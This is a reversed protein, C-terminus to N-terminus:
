KNDKIQFKQLVFSKLHLPNVIYTGTYIEQCLADSLPTRVHKQKKPLNQKLLKFCHLNIIEGKKLDSTQNPEAPKEAGPKVLSFDLHSGVPSRPLRQSSDAQQQYSGNGQSQKKM